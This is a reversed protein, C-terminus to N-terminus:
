HLSLVWYLHRVAGSLDLLDSNDFQRLVWCWLINHLGQDAHQCLLPLRVEQCLCQNSSLHLLRLADDPMYWCLLHISRIFLYRTPLQLCMQRHRQHHCCLFHPHNSLQVCVKSNFPWCFHRQHLNVWLSRDQQWRLIWISLYYRLFQHERGELYVQPVLLCM